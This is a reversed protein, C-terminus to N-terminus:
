LKVKGSAIARLYKAATAQPASEFQDAYPADWASDPDGEFLKDGQKDNLGLAAMAVEQVAPNGWNQYNPHSRLKMGRHEFYDLVSDPSHYITPDNALVWLEQHTFGAQLVTEGAVCCTSKCVGNIAPSGWTGQDYNTITEAQIEAAVSRFLQRNLKSAPNDLIATAKDFASKVIAKTIKPKKM